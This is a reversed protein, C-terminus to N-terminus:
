VELIGDPREFQLVLARRGPYNVEQWGPPRAEAQFELQVARAFRARASEIGSTSRFTPLSSEPQRAHQWIAMRAQWGAGAMGRRGGRRGNRAQWGAYQSDRTSATGRVPQGAYQSDRTSATRRVRWVPRASFHLM